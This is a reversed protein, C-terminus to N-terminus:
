EENGFTNLWEEPTIGNKIFEREDPNLNPFINQILGGGNNYKKMQEETVDLTMSNLKGTLQSRKIVTIM